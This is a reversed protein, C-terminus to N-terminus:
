CRTKNYHDVIKKVLKFISLEIDNLYRKEVKIINRDNETKNILGSSQADERISYNAIIRDVYMWKTKKYIRLWYDIDMASNITEDFYGFKRFIKKKMFVAQHPIYNFYKLVCTPLIRYIKKSPFVGLLENNNRFVNIKGYIWDVDKNRKLYNSMDSLVNSDSLSDDSHLFIIYEGLANKIGLNMANSIGKPETQIINVNKSEKEYKLLLKKTNDKSFGDIFLHEYNDYNQRKLSLINKLVYKESNYTCTVITFFPKNM